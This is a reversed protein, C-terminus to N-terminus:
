ALNPWEQGLSPEFPPVNPGFNPWVRGVEDLELDPEAAHDAANCSWTPAEHRRNRGLNPRGGRHVGPANERGVERSDDASDM